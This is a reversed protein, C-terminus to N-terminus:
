PHEFSVGFRELCRTSGVNPASLWQRVIEEVVDAPLTVSTDGRSPSVVIQMTTVPVYESVTVDRSSPDIEVRVSM